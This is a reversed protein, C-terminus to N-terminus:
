ANDSGEAPPRGNGAIPEGNGAVPAEAAPAAAAEADPQCEFTRVELLGHEGKDTALQRKGLGLFCRGEHEQWDTARALLIAPDTSKESGPYRTPILGVATGGNAWVFQAPSWVLDRLDTPKDISVRRICHFPVWFYRGEIIAELIPGLRSDNDMMWEFPEGNITGRVAPAADLARNRLEEAAAYHGEATLSNAQIMWGVWEAPEGFVVPARKGAFVEARLAECNLAPRCVQAMLLNTADLEASVNLQTMAREWDGTICLLQFLFVRLKADAPNKRVREQLEKMAEAVQGRRVLESPDM